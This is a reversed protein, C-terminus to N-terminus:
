EAPRRPATACWTSFYNPRRRAGSVLPQLSKHSAATLHKDPCTPSFRTSCASAPGRSPGSRDTTSTFYSSRCLGFMGKHAIAAFFFSSLALQSVEDKTEDMKVVRARHWEDGQKHAFCQNPRPSDSVEFRLQESNDDYFDTIDDMLLDLEPMNALLTFWFSTPSEVEQICVDVM